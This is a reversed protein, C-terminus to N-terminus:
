KHLHVGSIANWKPIFILVESEVILTKPDFDPYTKSDHKDNRGLNIYHKGREEGGEGQGKTERCNM